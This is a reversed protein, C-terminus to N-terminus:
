PSYREYNLLKIMREHFDERDPLKELYPLSLSNEAQVWAVTEPSDSNELWHYPDAVKTGFYDDVVDQKKAIPYKLAGGMAIETVSLLLLLARVMRSVSARSTLRSFHNTFGSPTRISPPCSCLTIPSQHNTIPRERCERRQEQSTIPPALSGFPRVPTAFILSKELGM